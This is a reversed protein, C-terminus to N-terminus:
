DCNQEGNNKAALEPVLIPATEPYARIFRLRASDTLPTTGNLLECAYPYAYGTREAVQTTPINREKFFQYLETM